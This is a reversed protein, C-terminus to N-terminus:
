IKTCKCVDIEKYGAMSFVRIVTCLINELSWSSNFLVSPPDFAEVASNFKRDFFLVYIMIMKSFKVSETSKDGFIIKVIMEAIERAIRGVRPLLASMRVHPNHTRVIGAGTLKEMQREETSRPATGSLFSTCDQKWILPLLHMFVIM